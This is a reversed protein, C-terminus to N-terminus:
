LSKPPWDTRAPRWWFDTWILGKPKPVLLGRLSCSQTTVRRHGSTASTTSSEKPGRLRSVRPVRSLARYRPFCGSWIVPSCSAGEKTGTPSPQVSSPTDAREARPSSKLSPLNAPEKRIATSPPRRGARSPNPGAPSWTVKLSSTKMRCYLIGSLVNPANNIHWVDTLWALQTARPNASPTTIDVVIPHITM